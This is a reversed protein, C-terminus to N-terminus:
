SVIVPIALEAAFDGDYSMTGTVDFIELFPRSKDLEIPQDALWVNKMQSFVKGINATPGDYNVCAYVGGDFMDAVIGRAPDNIGASGTDICAEYRIDAAPTVAPNDRYFGIARVVDSRMDRERVFDRMGKWAVLVSNRYPGRVLLRSIATPRHYKLQVEM